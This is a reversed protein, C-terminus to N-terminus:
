PTFVGVYPFWEGQLDSPNRPGVGVYIDLGLVIVYRCIWGRFCDM